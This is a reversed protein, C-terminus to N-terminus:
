DEEDLAGVSGLVVRHCHLPDAFRLLPARLDDVDVRAVVAGGVDRVHVRADPGARVDGEEAGDDPQHDLVAPVVALVHLEM